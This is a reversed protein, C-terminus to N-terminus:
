NFIRFFHPCFSSLFFLPFQSQLFLWSLNLPLHKAFHPSCSALSIFPFQTHMPLKSLNLPLHTFTHPSFSYLFFISNTIAFIIIHSKVISAYFFTSFMLMQCYWSTFVLLYNVFHLKQKSITLLLHM